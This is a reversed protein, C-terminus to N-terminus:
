VLEKLKDAYNKISAIKEFITVIERSRQGWDNQLGPDNLVFNVARALAAADWDSFLGNHRDQIIDIMVGVRTTVVPLGCAMAELAVRPGGENLAPNVFIRAENMAQAVDHPGALWGAFHINPQLGLKQIQRELQTRLPGSGIVLLSIDPKDKKLLAVASILNQIGKNKELRAVYVLDYKKEVPLPKFISTDIYFAPIYLIKAAPIGANVLFEKTQTQNIVRVARAPQADLAIVIKTWWKYLVEKFSAAQPLGPIHMVELIYPVRTIKSIISAAIGNYFPAFEHVTMLDFHHATHLRICKWLFYIPHLLLPLPSIHVHVNNFFVKEGPSVDGVRPSVIDIRDWYLHFEELTSYFAGKKDTALGRVSGLGTIM